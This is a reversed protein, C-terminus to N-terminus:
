QYADFEAYTQQIFYHFVKNLLFYFMERVYVMIKFLVVLTMDTM